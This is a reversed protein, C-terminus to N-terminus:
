PTVGEAVRWGRSELCEKLYRHRLFEAALASGQMQPQSAQAALAACEVRDKQQEPMPKVSVLRQATCGALLLGGILGTLLLHTHYPM